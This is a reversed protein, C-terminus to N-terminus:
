TMAVPRVAPNVTMHHLTGLKPYIREESLPIGLSSRYDNSLKRLRGPSPLLRVKRGMKNRPNLQHEYTGGFLPKRLGTTMPGGFERSAGAGFRSSLLCARANWWNYGLGSNFYRLISTACSTMNLGQKLFYNWKSQVIKREFDVYLLANNQSIAANQTRNQLLRVDFTTWDSRRKLRAGSQLTMSETNGSAGNLGLEASNEWGDLPIWTWPMYWIPGSIKPQSPVDFVSPPFDGLPPPPETLGEIPLSPMPPSRYSQDNLWAQSWAEGTLMAVFVFAAAFRSFRIVTPM